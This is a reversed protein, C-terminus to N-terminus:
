HTKLEGRVFKVKTVIDDEAGNLIRKHCWAVPFSCEDGAGKFLPFTNEGIKPHDKKWYFKADSRRMVEGVYAGFMVAVGWVGRDSKTKLYEQHLKELADDAHKISAESYDLVIGMDKAIAVAEGASYAMFGEIPELPPPAPRPQKRTSSRWALVMAVLVVLAILLSKNM